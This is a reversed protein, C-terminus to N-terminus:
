GAFLPSSTVWFPLTITCCNWPLLRSAVHWVNLQTKRRGRANIILNLNLECNEEDVHILPCSHVQSLQYHRKDTVHRSCHGKNIYSISLELVVCILVGQYVM